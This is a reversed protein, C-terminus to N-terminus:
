KLVGLKKGVKVFADIAKDIHHKEHAASIQVRIRATGRPVVPYFFGVVDLLKALLVHFHVTRHRVGVAPGVEVEAVAEVFGFLTDSERDGFGGTAFDEVAEEGEVVLAVGFFDGLPVQVSPKDAGDWYMRVVLARPYFPDDSSVTSWFHTIVGPGELAGLTLTEGKAIRRSDGNKELDVNSSSERRATFNQAGTLDGM